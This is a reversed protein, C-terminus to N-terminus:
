FVRMLLRKFSTLPPAYLGDSRALQEELLRVQALKQARKTTRELLDYAPMFRILREMSAQDDAILAQVRLAFM